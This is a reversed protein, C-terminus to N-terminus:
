TLEPWLDRWASNQKEILNIKAKRLWNKIQKERLIASEMIELIESWIM